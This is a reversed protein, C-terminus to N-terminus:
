NRSTDFFRLENPYAYSMNEIAIQEMYALLDEDELIRVYEDNEAQIKDAKTQLDTLEKQKEAITAKTYIISTSLGLVCIFALIELFVDFTNQKKRNIINTKKLTLDEKRKCLFDTYTFACISKHRIKNYRIKNFTELM